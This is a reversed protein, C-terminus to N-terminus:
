KIGFKNILELGKEHFNAYFDIDDIHDITLICPSEIKPDNCGCVVGVDTTKFGCDKCKGDSECIVIFPHNVSLKSGNYEGDFHFNIAQIDGNTKKFIMAIFQSKNDSKLEYSIIKEIGNYTEDAYAILSPLVTNTYEGINVETKPNEQNEKPLDIEERCSSLFVFNIILILIAYKKM